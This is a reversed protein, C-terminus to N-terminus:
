PKARPRDREDTTLDPLRGIARNHPLLLTEFPWVAWYPVVATWHKGEVVIREGRKREDTIYDLLLSSGNAAFYNRQREDERAPLTPLYDNAWVQGHPHPNSCGMIEGKNEFVQVWRWTAGLETIQDAWVDVVHAIAEVDMEPLTLDHRPSFCIVRCEGSSPAAKLLPSGSEPATSEALLAAFDNTFVFTDSYAPNHTGEARTNGPCLYCTPDYPPRNEPTREEQKGKGRASPATRRYWCGTM